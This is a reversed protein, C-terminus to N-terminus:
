NRSTGSFGENCIGDPISVGAYLAIPEELQHNEKMLQSEQLLLKLKQPHIVECLADM